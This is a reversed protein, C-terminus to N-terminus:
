FYTCYDSLDYFRYNDNDKESWSYYTGTESKVRFGNDIIVIETPIIWRHTGDDSPFVVYIPEHREIAALVNSLEKEKTRKM